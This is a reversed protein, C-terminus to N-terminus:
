VVKSSVEKNPVILEPGHLVKVPINDKGLFGEGKERLSARIARRLVKDLMRTVTVEEESLKSHEFAFLIFM